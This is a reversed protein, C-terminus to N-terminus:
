GQRCDSDCLKTIMNAQVKEQISIRGLILKPRDTLAPLIPAILSVSSALQSSCLLGM